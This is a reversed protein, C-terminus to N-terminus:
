NSDITDVYFEDIVKSIKNNDCFSYLFIIGNSNTSLYVPLHPYSVLKDSYLISLLNSSFIYNKKQDHNYYLSIEELYKHYIM